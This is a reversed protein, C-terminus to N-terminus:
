YEEEAGCLVLCSHAESQLSMNNSYVGRACEILESYISNYYKHKAEASWNKSVDDWFEYLQSCVNEDAM